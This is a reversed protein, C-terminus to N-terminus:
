QQEGKSKGPLEIIVMEDKDANLIHEKIEKFDHCELIRETENNM